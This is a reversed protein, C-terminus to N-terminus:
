FAHLIESLPVFGERPALTDMSSSKAELWLVNSYLTRAVQAALGWLDSQRKRAIKEEAGPCFDLILERETLRKHACQRSVSANELLTENLALWNSM